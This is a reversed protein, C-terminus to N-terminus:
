WWDRYTRLTEWFMVGIKRESSISHFYCLLRNRTSMAGTLKKSLAQADFGTGSTGMKGIGWIVKGWNPKPV